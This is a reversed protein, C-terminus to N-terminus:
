YEIRGTPYDNFTIYYLLTKYSRVSPHPAQCKTQCDRLSLSIQVTKPSLLMEIHKIQMMMMILNENYRLSVLIMM